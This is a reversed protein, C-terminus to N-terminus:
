SLMIKVGGYKRAVFNYTICGVATSFFATAGAALPTMLWYLMIDGSANNAGSMLMPLISLAFSTVAAIIATVISALAAAQLPWIYTIERM